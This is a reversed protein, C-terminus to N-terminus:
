SVAPAYLRTLNSQHWQRSQETDAFHGATCAIFDAEPGLAQLQYLYFLRNAIAQYVAATGNIVTAHSFLMQDVPLAQMRQLTEVFAPVSSDVHMQFSVMDTGDLLRIINDGAHLIHGNILLNISCNTHGPAAIFELAFDGFQMREGGRLITHPPVMVLQPSMKATRQLQLEYHESGLFECGAFVHNGAIHDGNYHTNFVHTPRLGNAKLDASVAQAQDTFGADVLFANQGNLLALISIQMPQDSFTYWIMNPALITKEM